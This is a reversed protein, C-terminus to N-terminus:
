KKLRVVEFLEREGAESLRDFLQLASSYHLYVFCITAQPPIENIWNQPLKVM